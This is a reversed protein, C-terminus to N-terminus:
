RPRRGPNRNPNLNKVWDRFTKETVPRRECAVRQIWEHRHVDPLTATPDREWLLQAIARCRHKRADRSSRARQQEWDAKPVIGRTEEFRQLDSYAVLYFERGLVQTDPGGFEIIWKLHQEDAEQRYKELTSANLEGGTSFDYVRRVQKLPWSHAPAITRDASVMLLAQAPAASTDPHVSLLGSVSPLLIRAQGSLVFAQPLQKTILLQEVYDTDADWREAIRAVTFYERAPLLGNAAGHETKM